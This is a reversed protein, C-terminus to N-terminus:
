AVLLELHRLVKAPEHKGGVTARCASDFAGRTGTHRVSCWYLLLDVPHTGSNM